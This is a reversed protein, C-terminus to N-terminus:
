FATSKPTSITHNWDTVVLYQLAEVSITPRGKIGVAGSFM